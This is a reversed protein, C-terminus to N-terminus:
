INDARVFSSADYSSTTLKLYLTTQHSMNIARCGVLTNSGLFSFFNSADASNTFYSPPVTGAQPASNYANIVFANGYGADNFAMTNNTYIGCDAVAFGQSQQIFHMFGAGFQVLSTPLNSPTTFGGIVVRDGIQIMHRPFYESTQVIYYNSGYQNQVLINSLTFTDNWSSLLEGTPRLLQLSVKTLTALPTPLFTRQCTMYKPLMGYYGRTLTMTNSDIGLPDETWNADYQVIGFSRDITNNTGYNNTVWEKMCITVSPFSLASLVVDTNTTNANNKRRIVMDLGEAPLTAKTLELHTVNKFSKQVVTNLPVNTGNNAVRFTTTFNYRTEQTNHLWDRDGSCLVVNWEQPTTNM